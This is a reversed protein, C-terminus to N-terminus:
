KLSCLYANRFFPRVKASRKREARATMGHEAFVFLFENAAEIALFIAIGFSKKQGFTGFQNGFQQGVKTTTEQHAFRGHQAFHGKLLIGHGFPDFDGGLFQRTHRQLSRRLAHQSHEFLRLRHGHM